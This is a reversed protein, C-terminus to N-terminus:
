VHEEEWIRDSLYKEGGDPLIVVIVAGNSSPLSAVEVAAAVAAGSSVGAFIGESRALHRTFRAAQEDTVAVIRSLRDLELAGPLLGAGIGQIRHEGAWGATLFPSGAPEVGVVRVAQNRRQLARAVGTVTGGTGIGAVLLGVTGETDRWIEPGTTREHAWPNARNDFQSLLVARPTRAAIRRAQAISGPMGESGATLVIEAGLARLQRRREPSMTEPMTLIVRYRKVAGIMALALGTNGSTSEVITGGACLTGRAEADEVMALAARDKVSGTPNFRELKAYIAAAVGCPTRRLRVLPTNGIRDLISQSPTV